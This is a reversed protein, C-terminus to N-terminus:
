DEDDEVISTLTITDADEVFAICRDIEANRIRSISNSSNNYLIYKSNELEEILDDADILRM